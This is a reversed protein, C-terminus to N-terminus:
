DPLSTLNRHQRQQFFDDLWPQYPQRTQEPIFSHQIRQLEASVKPDRAVADIQRIMAEGRPTRSCYVGYMSPNQDEEIGLMMLEDSLETTTPLRVLFSEVYEPSFDIRGSALMIMLNNDQSSSQLSDLRGEKIATTLIGDVVPGYSRQIITAGRLDARQLLDNLSITPQNKNILHWDSRRIVIHPPLLPWLGVFYGIKDREASRVVGVICLNDKHQLDIFSRSLNMLLRHHQYQPTRAMVQSVLASVYDQAIADPETTWLSRGWYQRPNQPGPAEANHSGQTDALTAVPSFVLLSLLLLLLARSPM